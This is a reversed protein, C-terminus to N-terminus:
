KKLRNIAKKYLKEPPTSNLSKKFDELSMEVGNFIIPKFTNTKNM